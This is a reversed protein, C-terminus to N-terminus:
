TCLKRYVNLKLVVDLASTVNEEAKTKRRVRSNLNKWLSKDILFYSYTIFVISGGLSFFVDEVSVADSDRNSSSLSFCEYTTSYVRGSFSLQIEAATIVIAAGPDRM